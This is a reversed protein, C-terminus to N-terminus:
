SDLLEIVDLGDSSGSEISIRSSAYRDVPIEPVHREVSGEGGSHRSNNFKREDKGAVSASSGESAVFSQVDARSSLSGFPQRGNVNASLGEVDASKALIVIGRDSESSQSQSLEVDPIVWEINDDESGSSQFMNMNKSLNRPSSITEAVLADESHMSSSVLVDDSSMGAEGGDEFGLSEFM